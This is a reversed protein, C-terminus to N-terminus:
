TRKKKRRDNEREIEEKIRKEEELRKKENQEM